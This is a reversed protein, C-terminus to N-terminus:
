QRRGPLQNESLPNVFLTDKCLELTMSYIGDRPAETVLIHRVGTVLYKEKYYKDFILDKNESIDPSDKPSTIRLEILDGVSISADAPIVVRVKSNMLQQIQTKRKLIYTKMSDDQSFGSYM